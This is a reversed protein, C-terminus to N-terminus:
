RIESVENAKRKEGSKESAEVLAGPLFRASDASQFESSIISRVTEGTGSPSLKLELEIGNFITPMPKEHLEIEAEVEVAGGRFLCAVPLFLGPPHSPSTMSIELSESYLGVLDVSVLKWFGEM